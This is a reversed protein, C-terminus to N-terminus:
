EALLSPTISLALQRISHISHGGLELTPTSPDSHKAFSLSLRCLEGVLLPEWEFLALTQDLREHGENTGLRSTDYWLQELLWSAKDRQGIQLWHRCLLMSAIFRKRMSREHTSTWHLQEIVKDSAREHHEEFFTMLDVPHEMMSFLTKKPTSPEAVEARETPSFLQSSGLTEPLPKEHESPAVPAFLVCRRVLEQHFGEVGALYPESHLAKNTQILQELHPTALCLSEWQHEQVFSGHVLQEMLTRAQTWETPSPADQFHLTQSQKMMLQDGKNWLLLLLLPLELHYAALMAGHIIVPLGMINTHYLEGDQGHVSEQHWVGEPHHLARLLVRWCTRHTSESPRQAKTNPFLDGARGFCEPSTLSRDGAKPEWHFLTQITPLLTSVPCMSKKAEENIHQVLEQRDRSM